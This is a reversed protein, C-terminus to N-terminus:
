ELAEGEERKTKIAEVQAETLAPCASGDENIAASCVQCRARPVNAGDMEPCENLGNWLDQETADMKRLAERQRLKYKSVGAAEEFLFRREEPNESIIADIMAAQIVAYGHSGMGTDLFLNHLDKLRCVQGNLRYESDGARDLRRTVAVETYDSLLRGSENDIILTAEAASMPPRQPTGGFIVEEMKGGRMVRPRQEGLVWRVADMLNSKGCGNPGVVATIGPSLIVETPDPFTKFGTLEIRKLYM